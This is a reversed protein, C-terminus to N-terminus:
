GKLQDLTVKPAGLGYRELLHRQVRGIDEVYQNRLSAAQVARSLGFTHLHHAVQLLLAVVGLHLLDRVVEQDTAVSLRVFSASPVIFTAKVIKWHFVFRKNDSKNTLANLAANIIEPELTQAHKGPLKVWWSGVGRWSAWASAKILSDIFRFRSDAAYLTYPMRLLVTESTSSPAANNSCM